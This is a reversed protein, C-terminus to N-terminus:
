RFSDLLIGQTSPQLGGGAVDPGVPITVDITSAM